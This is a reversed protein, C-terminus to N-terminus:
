VSLGSDKFKAETITDIRAATEPSLHNAWDGVVGRRFFATNAVTGVALETKGGKTAELGNMHEFSCLKVIAEVAGDEEEGVGFPHGMFEALRRVHAAPDRQMEEYRFFLVQKPRALHARWYGLVHDWYPGFPSLGNCFIEAATEVSLPELGDRARFKNAFDWQSILHDKPDRCVYVIKCGTAIVTRPLSVFPVHTAFLRPDPLKNLDPIKNHAYLQYEFFKICEHPGFSNFPHDAADAPQESRHVTAYLLAKIWTTGSKPVTAVVIDSPRATFCVDAVMSGVMPMFSSHWGQDHRYLQNNSLGKSSPLSSVLSAFYQYLEPNTEAQKEAQLPFSQMSSSM